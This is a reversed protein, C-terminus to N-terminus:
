ILYKLIKFIGWSQPSRGMSLIIKQLMIICEAFIEHIFCFNVSVKVLFKSLNLEKLNDLVGIESPISSTLYNNETSYLFIFCTSYNYVVTIIAVNFFSLRVWISQDSPNSWALKPLSQVRSDMIKKIFSIRTLHYIYFWCFPFCLKTM